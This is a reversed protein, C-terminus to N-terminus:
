RWLWIGLLSLLQESDIPKAIYDSAGSEICKERDGKMAKATLAIIPLSRFRPLARIAKMTQYGDMGPMMIDMLVGDVNEAKELVEIAAKGNDASLVRISKQELITTMAFINRVDDDVVLITKGELVVHPQHRHELIARQPTTIRDHPRHLYMSSEELLRDLSGPAKRVIARAVRRMRAEEANTLDRATHIIVPVDRLEASKQMQEVVRVGSQDPLGLDLVVCDIGGAAMEALAREGTPVAKVVLDDGSLMEVIRSREREDDEVVLLTRSTQQVLAHLREFMRDLDERRV